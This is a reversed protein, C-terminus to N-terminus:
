QNQTLSNIIESKKYFKRRGITYAKLLGKTTWSNLTPASVQLLEAADKPKILLEEPPNISSVLLDSVKKAVQEVLEEKSISSLIIDQM